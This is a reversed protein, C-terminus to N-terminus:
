NLPTASMGRSNRYSPIWIMFLHAFRISMIKPNPTVAQPSSSQCGVYRILPLGDLDAGPQQCLTKTM